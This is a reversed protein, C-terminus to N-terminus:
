RQIRWSNVNKEISIKEMRAMVEIVKEISNFGSIRIIM